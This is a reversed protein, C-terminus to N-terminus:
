RAVGPTLRLRQWVWDLILIRRLGAAIGALAGLAVNNFLCFGQARECEAHHGPPRVVAFARQVDGSAVRQVAQADIDREACAHCLLPM